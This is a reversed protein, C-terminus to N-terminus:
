TGRNRRFFHFWVTPMLNHCTCLMWTVLWWAAHARWRSATHTFNKTLWFFDGGKWWCSCILMYLIYIYQIFIMDKHIFRAHNGLWSGFKGPLINAPSTPRVGSKSCGSSKIWRWRSTPTTERTSLPNSTTFQQSKPNRLELFAWEICMTWHQYM